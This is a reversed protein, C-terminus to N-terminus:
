MNLLVFKAVKPDKPPLTLHFMRAFMARKVGRKECSKREKQGIRLVRWLGLANLYYKGIQSSEFERSTVFYNKKHFLVDM